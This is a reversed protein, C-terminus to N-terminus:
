SELRAVRGQEGAAWCGLDPTCDVTDYSGADLTRWTRGADTTLDTGAPGVALAATRCHPLAATLRRRLPLRAAPRGRSVLHPRRGHDHCPRRPPSTPATTM